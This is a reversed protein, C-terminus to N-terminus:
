IYIYIDFIQKSNTNYAWEAKHIGESGIFQDLLHATVLVSISILEGRALKQQVVGLVGALLEM